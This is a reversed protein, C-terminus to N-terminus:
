HHDKSVGAPLPVDFIIPENVPRYRVDCIAANVFMTEGDTTTGHGEHIHGFVHYRPRVRNQVVSLLEVCGVHRNRVCFDGHGVPPTHTMLVDTNTPIRNWKELLAQGRQLNFAWNHFRPQWPSGYVKVGCATAEADELYSCNLLRRKVMAVAEELAARARSQSYGTTAPDFSLEHNGAIVFKHRHPLTALFRSFADVEEALGRKTFDGAHLLVDGDPIPYRMREIASHTDSICVFRVADEKVPTDLPLPTVARVTQTAKLRNWATDSDHTLPNVAVAGSDM